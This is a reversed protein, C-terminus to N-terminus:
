KLYNKQFFCLFMKKKDKTFLNAQDFFNRKGLEIIEKVDPFLNTLRELKCIDAQTHHFAFRHPVLRYSEKDM